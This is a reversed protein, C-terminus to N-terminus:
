KLWEPPKGHFGDKLGSPCSCEKELNVLKLLAEAIIDEVLDHVGEGYYQELIGDKGGHKIESSLGAGYNMIPAISGFCLEAERAMVIEPILPTGIIDGGEQRYAKIESPTEFRPGEVCVFVGKSFVRGTNSGAASILTGRIEPCFPETMDVRVWCNEDEFLSRVRNKTRDLFDHPIVVDGPRLLPNISGIANQSIVRKVGLQRLSWINARYNINHSPITQDDGYRNICAVDIGKIKGTIVGINGWPTSILVKERSELIRDSIRSTIIGFQYM